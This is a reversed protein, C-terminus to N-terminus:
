GQKDTSGFGGVREEETNCNDAILCPMFAFQAIKDGVKIEQQETGYNYLCIGINGGTSVNNYYDADIWAQSNAFSLHGRLGQSSRVNGILCEQNQMYAKIDTHFLHQEGPQITITENCFFDYAMAEKTGKIPLKVDVDPHKRYKDDVIEFGRVRIIEFWPRDIGEQQRIDDM